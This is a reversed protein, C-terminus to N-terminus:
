NKILKIFENAPTAKGFYYGQGEDCNLKALYNKQYETEIGEAITTLGLKRGMEIISHAINPEDNYPSIGHVFAKDIKLKQIPFRDLNSLSSYGTGFDDMSLLIGLSKLRNMINIANDMNEIMSTETIELELNDAPLKTQELIQNVTEILSPDKFHIPSLNVAIRLNYGEDLWTKNQMCATRLIWNGMPIILESQEALSIFKSPEIFGKRKHDWRVLAEAGTIEGSELNVQPQYYVSLESKAVAAHLDLLLNNDDVSRDLIGRAQSAKLWNLLIISTATLVVSILCGLLILLIATTLTNLDHEYFIFFSALLITSEVSMITFFVWFVVKYYLQRRHLPKYAPIKILKKKDM